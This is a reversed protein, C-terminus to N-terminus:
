ATALSASDQNQAPGSRRGQYFYHTGSIRPPRKFVRVQVGEHAASAGATAHFIAELDKLHKERTESHIMIDDLYFIVCRDILSSFIQNMTMKFTALANTLGFPMVEYEFSGYRTRFATKHCEAAVVRIQSYGGRLDIKSFFRAKRLQDILEDARPIPYHSKITVRNLARYDTCMRYGSVKKPTFVIPAAFPSSSLRIIKKRIM